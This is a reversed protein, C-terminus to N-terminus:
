PLAEAFARVRRAFEAPQEICPLHGAGRIETFQAQPLSDALQRCIEPPTPGDEEGCLVLAPVDLEKVRERLDADRLAACSATYGAAPQRALMHLYGQYEAPHLEAYDKGFWRPLIEPAM